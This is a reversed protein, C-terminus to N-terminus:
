FKNNTNISRISVKSKYIKKINTSNDFIPDKWAVTKGIENMGLVVEISRPCFVIKPPELPKVTIVTSCLSFKMFDDTYARFEIKHVGLGLQVNLNQAWSPFVKIQSPNANSKPRELRVYIQKQNTRLMITTNQPCKIYIEPKKTRVCDIDRTTSWTGSMQCISVKKNAAIYGTSCHLICREGVLSRGSVCRSPLITGFQPRPLPHCSIAVLFHFNYYFFITKYFSVSASRSIM